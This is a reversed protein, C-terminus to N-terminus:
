SLQVKRLRLSNYIVNLSSLSMAAAGIMPHLLGLMAFPIAIANYFWAWFYNEKIKRFIAKSLIVASLITSLDGRILTIDAAEIAIDTGTGIAIGVNAQKLAPADNIGDGVMAVLGYNEQLKKIEQVKGEPLVDSIVHSIHIQKAIAEATRKNDGTIMATKIGMKEILDITEKANPKIQDAVAILGLVQYENAVLMVTKAEDELHIMDFDITTTSIKFNNLLKRNGIMFLEGDITAKIGCGTISEFEYIKSIAVNEKNAKEIIAYALPHESGTELSAAIQLLKKIDGQVVKIDTVSPKGFTLTGTKDFAIARVDKLTQVAEGNRILIGKEAGVGSGVMLATPTGLGLACPCAIVLVATATIFALIIPSQEVNIWPLFISMTNLIKLHFSTFILFSTFTLITLVIIAPVFYSTIRDAFEQIPVKSGQCAEVLEIVQALFTDNGVKTVEVKLLGHMNITAGIVLDGAIKKVPMSEGTALSEDLLSAGELILGDTPIKEGPRIIMIDGVSLEITQVEIEEDQILIRATKAGLDILKKIAQSAKGKAKTELYKGILHFTMITTAMEIFTTIPLFLGLLGILYPPISGLSVLVDMNPKLAKLSKYSTKHVHIGIIFIVPFGLIATIYTYLPIRTIFMNIIMLTMIITTLLASFFMKKKAKNMKLQDPDIQLNIEEELLLKYGIDSVSKKIQSIKIKEIDYEITAKDTAINVNVNIIGSLKRITNEVSTSCTACTMGEVRMLIKQINKVLKSASYGALYVADIIQNDNITNEDYEVTAIENAYNVSSSQVGQLKQITQEVTRVCTSCTMGDIKFKKTTM